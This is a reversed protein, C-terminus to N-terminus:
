REEGASDALATLPTAEWHKAAALATEQNPYGLSYANAGPDEVPAWYWEGGPDDHLEPLAAEHRHYVITQGSPTKASM